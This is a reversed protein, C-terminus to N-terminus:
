RQELLSEEVAKALMAADASDGSDNAITLDVTEVPAKFFPACVISYVVVPICKQSLHTIIIIIYFISQVAHM